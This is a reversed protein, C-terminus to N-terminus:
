DDDAEKLIIAAAQPVTWRPPPRHHELAWAVALAPAGASRLLESGEEPHRLYRGIRGRVGGAATWREARSRGGGAGILTIPVRALTGFGSTIKGVDHLLAAAILDPTSSAGAALEARQAVGVAHRRDPGSMEAWLRHTGSGAGLVSEVWVEDAASPGAPNLAGFFRKVLHPWGNM